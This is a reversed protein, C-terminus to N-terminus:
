NGKFTANEIIVPYFYGYGFDKDLTVKGTAQLTDGVSISTEEATFVLDNTGTAEAGSGDRLHVWDRQMIGRSNKSVNGKVTITQDKLNKRWLYIEEVTYMEKKIFPKIPKEDQIKVTKNPSKNQTSLGLMAKMSQPQSTKQALYIDSAFYIEKFEQDLTKSYFDKMATNKDFGIKEGVSVPADAIAIWTEKGNEDIKLYKYNMATKIELIKGYFVPTKQSYKKQTSEKGGHMDIKGEQAYSINLTILLTLTTFSLRKM